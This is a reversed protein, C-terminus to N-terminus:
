KRVMKQREVSDYYSDDDQIEVIEDKLMEGEDIELMLDDYENESLAEFDGQAYGLSMGLRWIERM